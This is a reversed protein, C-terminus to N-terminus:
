KLQDEKCEQENMEQYIDSLSYGFKRVINSLANGFDHNRKQPVYDECLNYIEFIMKEISENKKM